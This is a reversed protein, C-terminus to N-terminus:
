KIKGEEKLMLVKVRKMERAIVISAVVAAITDSIPFSLLVGMIGFKIPLIYTLPITLVALRLLSFKTTVTGKGVSQFYNACSLYIATSMMMGLHIPIAKATYEILEIDNNVFFGAIDKSNHKITFVLFISLFITIGMSYFFIKRVRRYNKAGWNYSLIPLRGQNIGLYSTNLFNRVITMIGMGALALDGGYKLLRTNLAYAFVSNLFQNIFGSLGISIIRELIEKNFRIFKLQLKLLKGRFFYIILFIGPVINSITTALAAGRMGYGSKVVWLYDLGINLFASTLNTLMSLLPQGDTRLFASLAIILIQFIMSPFFYRCYDIVYSINNSTAGLFLVLPKMFSFGVITFVIGMISLCFFSTGLIRRAKEIEQRGMSIGAYASGGTGFLIGCASLFMIIPFITALGSIGNRGVVKGIYYRDTINYIITTLNAITAPLSFKMLLKVINGERFELEQKTM